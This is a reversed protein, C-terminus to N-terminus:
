KIVKKDKKVSEMLTKFQNSETVYDNTKSMQDSYNYNFLKKMRDMDENIAQKDKKVLVAGENIEEDWRVKYTKNGDTMLFVHGDFKYSEPILTQLHKEDKIVTEKFNLRKMKGEKVTTRVRPSDMYEGEVEKYKDGYKYEKYDEGAKKLKEYTDEEKEGEGFGDVTGFEKDYESTDNLDDVREEFNKYTESDENDYRIGQMKGAGLAETEYADPVDDERTTKPPNELANEEGTDFDYYDEMKKSFEKYYDNNVKGDEKHVSKAVKLGAPDKEEKITIKINKTLFKKEM